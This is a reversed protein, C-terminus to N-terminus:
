IDRGEGEDLMVPFPKYLAAIQAEEQAVSLAREAQEGDRDQRYLEPTTVHDQASTEQFEITYREANVPGGWKKAYYARSAGIRAEHAARAEPTMTKLTNSGGGVHWYPLNISGIRSGWGNLLWRRHYDLDECFAPAFGEDFAFAEHATKTIMYCSFDPGGLSLVHGLGSRDPASLWGQESGDYAEYQEQTVGVCSVFLLDTHGLVGRLHEYTKPRIRIDNNVVFADTGGCAWVFRLAANWSASLSPLPPDHSWVLVQEPNQEAIQELRRRFGTEVGQNVVLLRIPVSQALIDSIAAMTLIEAGMVPMIVHGEIVEVEADPHLLEVAGLDM